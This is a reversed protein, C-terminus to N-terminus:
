FLSWYTTLTCHVNSKCGPRQKELEEMETDPFFSSAKGNHQSSDELSCLCGEEAGPAFAHFLPTLM